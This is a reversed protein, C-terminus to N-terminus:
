MQNDVVQIPSNTPRLSQVADIVLNQIMQMLLQSPLKKQDMGAYHRPITLGNEDTPRGSGTFGSQSQGESMQAIPEHGIIQGRKITNCV